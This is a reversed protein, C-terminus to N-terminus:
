PEYFRLRNKLGEIETQMNKMKQLLHFVADLGEMNINLENHLRIMREAESVEGVPLCEEQEITVVKVLNYEQLTDIFTIEISHHQCFVKVPIYENSEM